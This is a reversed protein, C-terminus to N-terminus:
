RNTPHTYSKLRCQTYIRCVARTHTVTREPKRKALKTRAQPRTHHTYLRRRTGRSIYIYVQQFAGSNEVIRMLSIKLVYNRQNTQHIISEKKVRSSRASFKLESPSERARSKIKNLSWRAVYFSRSSPLSQLRSLPETRQFQNRNM